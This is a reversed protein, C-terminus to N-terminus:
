KIFKDLYTVFYTSNLNVIWKGSVIICGVNSFVFAVIHMLGKCTPVPLSRSFVQLPKTLYLLNSNNKVIKLTVQGLKKKLPITAFYGKTNLFKLIQFKVKVSKVNKWNQLIQSLLLLLVESM